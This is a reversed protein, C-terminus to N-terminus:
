FMQDLKTFCAKGKIKMINGRRAARRKLQRKKETPEEEKVRTTKRRGHPRWM